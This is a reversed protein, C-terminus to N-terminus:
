YNYDGLYGTADGKSSGTLYSSSSTKFNSGGTDGGFNLNLGSGGMYAQAATGAGRIISSNQVGTANANSASQNLFGQLRINSAQRQYGQSSARAQAQLDITNLFGATQSENRITAATGFSADIDAAAFTVEQNSLVAEVQNQYRNAVAYGDKWANYSDIEALEANYDALERNMKAQARMMESQQLGQWVQMVAMAAAAYGSM